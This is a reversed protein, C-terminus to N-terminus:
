QAAVRAHDMVEQQKSLVRACFASVRGVAVDALPVAVIELVVDGEFEGV